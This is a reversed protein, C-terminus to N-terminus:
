TRTLGVAIHHVPNVRIHSARYKLLLLHRTRFKIPFQSNQAPPRPFLIDHRCMLRLPAPESKGVEGRDAAVKGRIGIM